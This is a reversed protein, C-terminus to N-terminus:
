ICLICSGMSLIFYSGIVNRLVLSFSILVMKYFSSAFTLSYFHIASQLNTKCVRCPITHFYGFWMKMPATVNNEMVNVGFLEQSGADSIFIMIEKKSYWLSSLLQANSFDHFEDM